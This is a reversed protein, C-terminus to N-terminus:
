ISEKSKEKVGPPKLTAKLYPLPQLIENETRKVNKPMEKKGCCIDKM